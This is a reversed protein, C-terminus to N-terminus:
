ETSDVLEDILERARDRSNVSRISIETPFRREVPNSLNGAHVECSLVGSVTGTEHKFFFEGDFSEDGIGHRWQECEFSFSKDPQTPRKPKYYFTNPDRRFGHFTHPDLAARYNLHNYPDVVGRTLKAIESLQDFHPNSFRSEHVWKGRPPRPPCPLALSTKSQEKTPLDDDSRPPCVLFNGNAVINVLTDTGPRTGSNVISFKFSPHGYSQQLKEHICSFFEECKDIWEPYDQDTYDSIEEDTAPKYTKKKRYLRSRATTDVKVAPERSGFDSVIPFLSRLSEICALVEDNSMPDYVTYELHLENVETGNDDVLRIEFNPENQELESIRQNLRAIKKESENHEPALLWEDKIADVTLGHAEATIMPGTDHTLLRADKGQNEKMFRDLFGVIEDDAKSYDLVDQLDTSPLSSAQLYLRVRPNADRVELYKENSTFIERFISNTKRARKAARDSGRNKRSDIERQVPRCVILNVQGFESWDSWDLQDLPRCQIFLNTDPFLYVVKDAM